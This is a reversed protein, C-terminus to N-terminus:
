FLLDGAVEKTSSLALLVWTDDKLYKEYNNSYLKLGEWSVDSHYCHQLLIFINTCCARPGGGPPEAKLESEKWQQSCSQISRVGPNKLIGKLVSALPSARGERKNTEELEALIPTEFKEM